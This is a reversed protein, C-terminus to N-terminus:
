GMRIRRLTGTANTVAAAATAAAGAAAGALVNGDLIAAGAAGIGAGVVAREQDQSMQCGATALFATGILCLTLTRM